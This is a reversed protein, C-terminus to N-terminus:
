FFSRRRFNRNAVINVANDWPIKAIYGVLFVWAIAAVSVPGTVNSPLPSKIGLLVRSLFGAFLLQAFVVIQLVGAVWLSERYAPEALAKKLGAGTLISIILVTAMLLFLALIELSTFATAPRQQNFQVARPILMALFTVPPAGTVFLAGLMPSTLEALRNVTGDGAANSTAKTTIESLGDKDNM